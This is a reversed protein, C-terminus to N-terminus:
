KRKIVYEFYTDRAKPRIVNGDTAQGDRRYKEGVVKDSINRM